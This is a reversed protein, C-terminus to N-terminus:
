DRLSSLSNQLFWLYTSVLNKESRREGGHLQALARPSLLCFHVVGDHFDQFRPPPLAAEYGVCCVVVCLTLALLMM